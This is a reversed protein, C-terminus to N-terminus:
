SANAAKSFRDHEHFLERAPPNVSFNGLWKIHQSRAVILVTSIVLEKFALKAKDSM